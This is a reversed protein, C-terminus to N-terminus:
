PRDSQEPAVLALLLLFVVPIAATLLALLGLGVALGLLSLIVAIGCTWLVGDRRLRARRQREQQAATAAQARFQAYATELENV